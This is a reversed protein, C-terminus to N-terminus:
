ITARRIYMIPMEDYMLIIPMWIYMLMPMADHMLMMPMWIYMFIYADCRAHTHYVCGPTHIPLCRMTCSYSVCGSTCSSTPTEDHM